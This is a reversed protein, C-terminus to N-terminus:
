VSAHRDPWVQTAPIPVREGGQNTARFQEVISVAQFMAGWSSQDLEM